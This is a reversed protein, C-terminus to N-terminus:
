EVYFSISINILHTNQSLATAFEDVHIGGYLLHRGFNIELKLEELALHPLAELFWNWWTHSFTIGLTLSKLGDDCIGM